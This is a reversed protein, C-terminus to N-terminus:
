KGGQKAPPLFNLLTMALEDRQVNDLQDTASVRLAALYGAVFQKGARPFKAFYDRVVRQLDLMPGEENGPHEPLSNLDAILDRKIKRHMFLATASELDPKVM